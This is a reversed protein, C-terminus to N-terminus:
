NCKKYYMLCGGLDLPFIGVLSLKKVINLKEKFSKYPIAEINVM